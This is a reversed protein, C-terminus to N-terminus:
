SNERTKKLVAETWASNELYWQITQELGAEFNKFKRQFGLEHVALTDDIAYRFDHGLRDTVFSILNEYGVGDPRPKLENLTKCLAKVVELNTRESSGGFCYTGGAKGKEFALLVGRSHDEVHIWDRINQGKGYVPLPKGSLANRIMVPILKEPFQRPGYNNSCNTTVTNLGYTHHWARVLHDSAAKSASYPSNPAYATSESFKGLVGLSGFVEDTSVHLFRCNSKREPQTLWHQRACELLNLTGMINTEAFVRPGTISNDVHSEAAFNIVGTLSRDAFLKELLLRDGIDGHIFDCLGEQLVGKLNEKHGAYTLADLITIQYGAELAIRVFASGIFGAAGTVLLHGKKSHM